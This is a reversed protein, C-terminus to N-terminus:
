ARLLMEGRGGELFDGHYMDFESHSLTPPLPFGSTALHRLVLSIAMPRYRCAYRFTPLLEPRQEGLFILTGRRMGAGHRIGADGLVLVTGALMNFGALDDAAGVAVLGRRMSHGIENGARGHILITGGTMGRASGRYAAGVLHGANGRVCILGGHLEGGVWDGANGDVHIQGGSMESGTHRGADGHVDIRGSTMGAGIWHVGSLDGYWELHEDSSDGSVDFFEALPVQVNGHFIQLRRIEDLSKDCVVDPTVGEVEVPVSSAAKLELRLAM